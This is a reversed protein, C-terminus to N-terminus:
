AASPSLSEATRRAAESTRSCSSPPSALAPLRTASHPAARRSSWSSSTRRAATRWSAVSPAPAAGCAAASALRRASLEAGTRRAATSARASSPSTCAASATGCTASRSCCGKCVTRRAAAVTSPCRPADAHGCPMALCAASSASSDGVTRQLATSARRSRPLASSSPASRTAAITASRMSGCQHTRSATALANRWSPEAVECLCRSARSTSAMSLSQRTLRSAEATRLTSRGPVALAPPSVGTWGGSRFASSAWSDMPSPRTAPALHPWWAAQASTHHRSACSTELQGSCCVAHLAVHSPHAACM